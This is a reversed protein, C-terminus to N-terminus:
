KELLEITLRDTHHEIWILSDYIQRIAKLIKKDVEEEKRRNGEVNPIHNYSIRMRHFMTEMYEQHKEM